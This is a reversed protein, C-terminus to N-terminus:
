PANKFWTLLWEVPVLDKMFSRRFSAKGWVRSVLSCVADYDSPEDLPWRRAGHSETNTYARWAHLRSIVAIEYIVARCEQGDHDLAMQEFHDGCAKLLFGLNRHAPDEGRLEGLLRASDELCCLFIRYIREREARSIALRSDVSNRLKDELYSVAREPHTVVLRIPHYDKRPDMIQVVDRLHAPWSVNRDKKEGALRVGAASLGRYSIGQSYALVTSTPCSISLGMDGPPHFLEDAMCPIGDRKGEHVKQFAGILPCVSKVRELIQKTCRRHKDKLLQRLKGEFSEVWAPEALWNFGCQLLLSLLHLLDSEEPRKPDTADLASLLRGQFHDKLSTRSGHGLTHKSRRARELLHGTRISASARQLHAELLDIRTRVQSMEEAAVSDQKWRELLVPFTQQEGEPLIQCIGIISLEALLSTFLSLKTPPPLVKDKLLLLWAGEDPHVDPLNRLQQVHGARCDGLDVEIVSDSLLASERVLLLRFDDVLVRDPIYISPVGNVLGIVPHTPRRKITAVAIEPAGDELISLVDERGLDDGQLQEPGIMNQVLHQLAENGSELACERSNFALRWNGTSPLSFELQWGAMEAHDQFDKRGMYDQLPCLTSTRWGWSPQDIPKLLSVPAVSQPWSLAGKELGFRQALTFRRLPFGDEDGELLPNWIVGHEGIAPVFVLRMKAVEGPLGTKATLTVQEGWGQPTEVSLMARNLDPELRLTHGQEVGERLTALSWRTEPGVFNHAALHLEKTGVVVKTEEDGPCQWDTRLAHSASVDLYPRRGVYALIRGNAGEKLERNQEQATGCDYKHLTRTVGKYCIKGCSEAPLRRQGLYLDPGEIAEPRSAAFLHRGQLHVFEVELHELQRCFRGGDGGRFLLLDDSLWNLGEERETTRGLCITFQEHLNFSDPLSAVKIYLSPRDTSVVTQYVLQRCQRLELLRSESGENGALWINCVRLMMEPRGDFLGIGLAISFDDEANKKSWIPNTKLQSGVSSPDQGLLGRVSRCFDPDTKRQLWLIPPPIDEQDIGDVSCIDDDSTAAKTRRIIKPMSRWLKSSHGENGTLWCESQFRYTNKLRGGLHEDDEPPFWGCEEHITQLAKDPRIALKEKLVQQYNSGDSHDYFLKAWVLALVWPAKLLEEETFDSALMNRFEDPCLIDPDLACLLLRPLRGNARLRDSVRVNARQLEQPTMKNSLNKSDAPSTRKLTM